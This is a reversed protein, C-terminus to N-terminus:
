RHQYLDGRQETDSVWENTQVVTEPVRLPLAEARPPFLFADQADWLMCGAAVSKPNVKNVVALTLFCHFCNPVRRYAHWQRLNLGLTKATWQFGCAATAGQVARLIPQMQSHLTHWGARVQHSVRVVSTCRSDWDTELPCDPVEGRRWLLPGSRSSTCRWCNSRSLVSWVERGEKM